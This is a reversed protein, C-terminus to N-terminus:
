QSSGASKSPAPRKKEKFKPFHHNNEFIFSFFIFSLCQIIRVTKTKATAM